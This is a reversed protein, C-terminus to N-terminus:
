KIPEDPFMLALEGLEARFFEMDTDSDKNGVWENYADIIKDLSEHFDKRTM